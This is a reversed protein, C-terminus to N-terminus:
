ECLLGRWWWKKGKEWSVGNERGAGKATEQGGEQSLRGGAQGRGFPQRELDQMGETLYWLWSMMLAMMKMLRFQFHVYTEVGM